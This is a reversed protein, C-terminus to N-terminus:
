DKQEREGSDGIALFVPSTPQMETVVHIMLGQIMDSRSPGLGVIFVVAGRYSKAPPERPRRMSARRAYKRSTLSPPSIDALNLISQSNLTGSTAPM